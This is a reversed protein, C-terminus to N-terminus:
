HGAGAPAAQGAGRDKGVVLDHMPGALRMLWAGAEAHRGLGVIVYRRGDAEVMAADAHFDRWTGSKRYLRIDPKDKLGAVFKHSIGPDALIQKMAEKYPSAVM